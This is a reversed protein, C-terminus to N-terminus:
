SHRGQIEFPHQFKFHKLPSLNKQVHSSSFYYASSNSSLVTKKTRTLHSYNQYRHYNYIAAKLPYHMHTSVFSLTCYVFFNFTNKWPFFLCLLCNKGIFEVFVNECGSEILLKNLLFDSTRLENKWNSWLIPLINILSSGSLQSTGCTTFQIMSTFQFRVFMRMIRKKNNMEKLIQSAKM